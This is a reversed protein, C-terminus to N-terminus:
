THARGNRQLKKLLNQYIWRILHGLAHVAHNVGRSNLAQLLHHDPGKIALRLSSSTMCLHMIKHCLRFTMTMINVLLKNQPHMHSQHGETPSGRKRSNALYYHKMKTTRITQNLGWSGRTVRVIQISYIGM